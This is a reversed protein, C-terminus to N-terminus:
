DSGDDLGGITEFDYVYRQGSVDSCDEESPWVGFLEQITERISRRIAIRNTGIPAIYALTWRRYDLCPADDGFMTGQSTYSYVLYEPETSTDLNPEIRIGLGAIGSVLKDDLTM